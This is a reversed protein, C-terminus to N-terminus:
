RFCKEKLARLYTALGAIIYYFRKGNANESKLDVPRFAPTPGDILPLFADAPPLISLPRVVRGNMRRLIPLLPPLFRLDQM